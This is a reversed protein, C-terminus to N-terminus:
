SERSRRPPWRRRNSTRTTGDVTAVADTGTSPAHLTM